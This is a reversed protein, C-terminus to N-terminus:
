PQKIILPWYEILFIFLLNIHLSGHPVYQKDGDEQEREIRKREGRKILM